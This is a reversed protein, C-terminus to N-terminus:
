KEDLLDKIITKFFPALRNRHINSTLKVEGSKNDMVILVYRNESDMANQMHELTTMKDGKIERTNKKQRM